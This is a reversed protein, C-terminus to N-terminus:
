RISCWTIRYTLENTNVIVLYFPFISFFSYSSPSTPNMLTALTITWLKSCAWKPSFHCDVSTLSYSPAYTRYTSPTTVKSYIYQMSEMSTNSTIREPQSTLNLLTNDPCLKLYLLLPNHPLSTYSINAYLNLGLRSDGSSTM